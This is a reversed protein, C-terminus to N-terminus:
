CNYYQILDGYYGVRGWAYAAYPTEYGAREYEFVYESGWYQYGYIYAGCQDGITVFAGAKETAATLGFVAVVAAIPIATLLNRPRRMTLTGGTAPETVFTVTLGRPAAPL